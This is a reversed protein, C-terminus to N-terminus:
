MGRLIRQHPMLCPAKIAFLVLKSLLASMAATTRQAPFTRALTRVAAMLLEDIPKERLHGIRGFPIWKPSHESYTRRALRELYSQAYLPHLLPFQAHRLPFEDIRFVYIRALDAHYRWCQLAPVATRTGADLRALSVDM